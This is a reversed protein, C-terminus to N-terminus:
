FDHRLTPPLQFSENELNRMIGEHHGIEIFRPEVHAVHWFSTTCPRRDPLGSLVVPWVAHTESQSELILPLENANVCLPFQIDDLTGIILCGVEDGNM